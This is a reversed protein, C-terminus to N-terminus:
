KMLLGICGRKRPFAQNQHAAKSNSARDADIETSPRIEPVVGGVGM